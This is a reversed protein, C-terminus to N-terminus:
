VAVIRGLRTEFAVEIAAEVALAVAGATVAASGLESVVVEVGEADRRIADLADSGLSQEGGPRSIDSLVILQPDIVRAASVLDALEAGAAGSSTGLGASGHAGVVLDGDVIAGVGRQAGHAVLVVHRHEAAAGSDLEGLAAMHISNTVTVSLGTLEGLREALRETRVAGTETTWSVDGTSPDVIAPVVVAATTLRAKADLSTALMKDIVTEVLDVVGDPQFSEITEDYAGLEVADLDHLTCRIANPEIIVAISLGVDAVPDFLLGARGPKGSEMGVDTVLGSDVLTRLALSVTPKSLGSRRALEARSIPRMERIMGYVARENMERLLAPQAPGIPARESDRRSSPM